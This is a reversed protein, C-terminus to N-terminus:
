KDSISCPQEERAVRIGGDSGIDGRERSEVNSDSDLDRHCRCIERGQSTAEFSNPSTELSRFRLSVEGDRIQDLEPGEDVEMGRTDKGSPGSEAHTEEGEKSGTVQNRLKFSRPFKTGVERTAIDIKNLPTCDKRDAEGFSRLEIAGGEL